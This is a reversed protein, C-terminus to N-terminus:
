ADEVVKFKRWGTFDKWAEWNKRPRLIVKNYPEGRAELVLNRDYIMGVHHTAAADPHKFFGVDGPQPNDTSLSAEFQNQSGDPVTIGVQAYCWEVLESCDFVAANPDHLDVEVGFKYPDGLRSVAVDMLKERDIM